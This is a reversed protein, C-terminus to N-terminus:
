KLVEVDSRIGRLLYEQESYIDPSWEWRWGAGEPPAGQPVRLVVGGDGHKAGHQAAIKPDHTWSTYPSDAAYGGGNHMEPTVTGNINGPVVEGKKAAELAPHDAHVGRYLYNTESDVLGEVVEAAEATARVSTSRTKSAVRESEVLAEVAEVAEGSAKVNRTGGMSGLRGGMGELLAEALPKLGRRSETTITAVSESMSSLVRRIGPGGRFAQYAATAQPGVTIALNLLEGDAEELTKGTVGAYAILPVSAACSAMNVTFPIFNYVGIGASFFDDALRSGTDITPNWGSMIDTEPYFVGTQPPTAAYGYLDVWVTPNSYAYLYRHLSPPTGPEGLYSDQSIFRASDPDYYRAGFFILGTKEDHEQGTFIQRNVSTGVQNRIHGWPDLTYSVKVSGASDTLNVTSGLADHHYYQV